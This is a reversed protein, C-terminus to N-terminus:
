EKHFIDNQVDKFLRDFEAKGKERDFSSAREKIQLKLGYIM